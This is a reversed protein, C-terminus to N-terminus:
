DTNGIPGDGKSMNVVYSKCKTVKKKKKPKKEKIVPPLPGEASGYIMKKKRKAKGILGYRHGIAIVAPPTKMYEALRQLIYTQSVGMKKAHADIYGLAKNLLFALRGRFLGTLHDHDTGTGELTEGLLINMDHSRMYKEVTIQEEPTIHYLLWLRAKLAKYKKEEPTQKTRQIGVYGLTRFISM